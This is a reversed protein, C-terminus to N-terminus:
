VDHFFIAAVILHQALDSFAGAIRGQAQEVLFGARIMVLQRPFENEEVIKIDVGVDAGVSM